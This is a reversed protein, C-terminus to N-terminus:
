SSKRIQGENRTRSGRPFAVSDFGVPQLGSRVQWVQLMHGDGGVSAATWKLEGGPCWRAEAAANPCQSPQSSLPDRLRASHGEHVFSVADSAWLECEKLNVNESERLRLKASFQADRSSMNKDLVSVAGEGSVLLNDRAGEDGNMKGNQYLDWIVSKGNAGMSLVAASAGHTFEVSTVSSHPHGGDLTVVSTALRRTDWLKIVGMADGSVLLYEADRAADLCTISASSAIVSAYGKQKQSIRIDYCDIMGEDTGTCFLNGSGVQWVVSNIGVSGPISYGKSMAMRARDKQSLGFVGLCGNSVALNQTNDFSNSQFESKKVEGGIIKRSTSQVTRLSSFQGDHPNLTLSSIKNADWLYVLGDQSGGLLIHADNPHFALSRIKSNSERISASLQMKANVVSRHKGGGWRGGQSSSADLDSQLFDSGEQTCWDDTISSGQRPVMYPLGGYGPSHSTFKDYNISRATANISHILIEGTMTSTAILNSKCNISQSVVPGPHNISCIERIPPAGPLTGCGGWM